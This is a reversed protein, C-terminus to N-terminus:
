DNRFKSHCDTCSGSLNGAAKKIKAAEGSNAAEILDDAGKKMDQTYKKWEATDKKPAYLETIEAVARSLQGAKILDDKLDAIKQPTLKIKSKPNGIKGLETEISAGDKMGIGGKVRPKYVYMIPKLEDFKKKIAAIQGKVDGKKGDMSEMLKIIAKQAEKIEKKDDDDAASFATLSWIGLALLSAGFTIGARRKM